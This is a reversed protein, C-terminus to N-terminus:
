LFLCFKHCAAPMMINKFIEILSIIYVKWSPHKRGLYEANRTYFLALTNIIRKVAKFFSFLDLMYPLINYRM